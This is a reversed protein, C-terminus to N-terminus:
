SLFGALLRGLEEYVPPLLHDSATPDGQQAAQLIRTVGSM